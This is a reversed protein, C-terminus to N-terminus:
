CCGKEGTCSGCDLPPRILSLVKDVGEDALDLKILAILTELEDTSMSELDEEIESKTRVM